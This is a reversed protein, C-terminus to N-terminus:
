EGEGDALKPATSKLAIDADIADRSIIGAYSGTRCQAELHRYREADRKDADRVAEPAEQVGAADRTAGAVAARAVDAIGYEGIEAMRQIKNLAAILDPAQVPQRPRSDIYAILSSRAADYKAQNFEECSSEHHFKCLLELFDSEDLISGAIAQEGGTAVGILDNLRAVEARWSAVQDALIAPQDATMYERTEYGSNM